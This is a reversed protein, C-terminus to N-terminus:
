KGSTSAPFIKFAISDEFPPLSLTLKRGEGRAYLTCLLGGSSTDYFEVKWRSASGPANVSVAEGAVRRAPWDPAVCQADRVWGLVVGSNGMACARVKPSGDAEIPAFGEFDVGEVFRAVPASAHKYKAHLDLHHYQDYGDEWWLMRGNMAGSFVSAWIAHKIGIHAGLALTLSKPSPGASDLGCEGILVPKRYRAVRERVSLLIMESLNGAFRPHDAYPHVQIFDLSDSAFLKPWEKIGALSATVPRSRRDAGRIVKAAQEMFALAADETSGTVLDLESFAEWGLINQRGEWRKVLKALWQLWLKRCESDQFLAVPRKAPGGLAVNYPNKQWLHWPRSSDDNWDAWVALVPLVSIGREAAMDFVTEWRRAWDEDMEGAAARPVFGTTLHVRVIKEGSERAWDLSSEFQQLQWGTLNRGLVFSQRGGVRFYPEGQRWEIERAKDAHVQSVGEGGLMVGQM